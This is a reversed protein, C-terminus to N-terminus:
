SNPPAGMEKLAKRAEKARPGDPLASLYLRYNRLAEDRHNLRRAAEALGFVAEANGPDALTAERFRDYAGQYDHTQLYFAGVQTDKKALHSDVDASSGSDQLETGRQQPLDFGKMGSQSSSYDQGPAAAAPKGKPASPAGDAPPASDPQPAPAAPPATADAPPPQHSAAESQELPFPNEEAASPKRAPPNAAKKAPPANPVNQQQAPPASTDQQQAGLPLALLLPIAGMLFRRM